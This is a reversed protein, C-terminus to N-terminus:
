FSFITYLFRVIAKLAEKAQEYWEVSRSQGFGHILVVLNRKIDFNNEWFSTTLDLFPLDEPTATSGPTHLLFVTGVVEPPHPLGDTFSMKNEKSFCGLNAYCVEHGNAVRVAGRVIQFLVCM